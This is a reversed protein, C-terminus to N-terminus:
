RPRAGTGSNPETSTWASPVTVAWIPVDGWPWPWSVAKAWITEAVRPTGISATRSSWESVAATGSPCPM